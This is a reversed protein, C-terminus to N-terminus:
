EDAAGVGAKVVAQESKLIKLVGNGAASQTVRRYLQRPIAPEQRGLREALINAGAVDHEVAHRFEGSNPGFILGSGGNRQGTKM